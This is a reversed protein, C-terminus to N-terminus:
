FILFNLIPNYKIVIKFKNTILSNQEDSSYEINPKNKGSLMLKTQEVSKESSEDTQTENRLINFHPNIAHSYSTMSDFLQSYSMQHRVLNDYTTLRDLRLHKFILKLINNLKSTLKVQCNKSIHKPKLINIITDDNNRLISLVDLLQKRHKNENETSSSKWFSNTVNSLINDYLDMVITSDVTTCRITHIPLLFNHGITQQGDKYNVVIDYNQSKSIDHILIKSSSRINLNNEGKIKPIYIHLNFAVVRNNYVYFPKNKDLVMLLDNETLMIEVKQKTSIMCSQKPKLIVTIKVPTLSSIDNIIPVEIIDKSDSTYSFKLEKNINSFEHVIKNIRKSFKCLQKPTIYKTAQEKLQLKTEM